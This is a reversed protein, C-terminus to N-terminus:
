STTPSTWFRGGGGGGGDGGDFLSIDDLQNYKLSLSVVNKPIRGKVSGELRCNVVAMDRVNELQALWLPLKGGLLNSCALDKWGITVVPNGHVEVEEDRFASAFELPVQRFANDRLDLEEVIASRASLERLDSEELANGRLNLKQWRREVSAVDTLNGIRNWSADVDRLAELKGLSEFPLDSFENNSVNLTVLTSKVTTIFSDPLRTLGTLGWNVDTAFPAGELKIDELSEMEFIAPDIYALNSAYRLDLSKLSTCQILAETALSEMNCNSADIISV